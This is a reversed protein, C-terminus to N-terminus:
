FKCTGHCRDLKRSCVCKPYISQSRYKNIEHNIDAAISDIFSKKLSKMTKKAEPLLMKWAEKAIKQGKM